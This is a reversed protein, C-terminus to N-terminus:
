IGLNRVYDDASKILKSASIVITKDIDYIQKWGSDISGTWQRAAWCGSGVIFGNNWNYFPARPLKYYFMCALIDEHTWNYLPSYRIVGTSKNKYIGDVGTYNMDMKRRGTLLISLKKDKVFKNQANHQISKFWKSSEKGSKPFLWGQNNSLWKLTHGSNYVVLDHPMNDTVFQLFEPYELEDTMGMCSPFPSSSIKKCVFDLVVSDKGGSWAVGWRDYNSVKSKISECTKDILNNLSNLSVINGINGEIKLFNENKERQKTKLM